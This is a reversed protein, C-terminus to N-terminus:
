KLGNKVKAAVIEQHLETCRKETAIIRDRLEVVADNLSLVVDDLYKRDAKSMSM